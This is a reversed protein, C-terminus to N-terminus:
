GRNHGTARLRARPYLVDKQYSMAQWQEIIKDIRRRLAQRQETTPNFRDGTVCGNRLERLKVSLEKLSADQLDAPLPGILPWLDLLVGRALKFAKVAFFGGVIAHVAAVDPVVDAKLMEQFVRLAQDPRGM